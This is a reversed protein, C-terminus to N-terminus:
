QYAANVPARPNYPAGQGYAKGGYMSFESPTNPFAKSAVAQVNAKFGSTPCNSAFKGICVPITEEKSLRSNIKSSVQLYDFNYKKPQYDGKEKDNSVKWAKM